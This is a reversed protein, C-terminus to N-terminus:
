DSAGLIEEVTEDPTQTSTDLWTGIRPTDHLFVDYLQRPSWVGYASSDRLADRATVVEISPLLVVIRFPRSRVFDPWLALSAGAVVDEVAVAYGATSYADATEAALRYRLDLQALAEETPEPTM